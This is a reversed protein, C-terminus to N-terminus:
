LARPPAAERGGPCQRGRPRAKRGSGCCAVVMDLVGRPAIRIRQRGTASARNDPLGPHRGRAAGLAARLLAPRCRIIASMGSRRALAQHPMTSIHRCTRPTPAVMSALLTRVHRPGPRQPVYGYNVFLTEEIALRPYGNMRSARVGSSGSICGGRIRRV